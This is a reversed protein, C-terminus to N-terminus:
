NREEKELKIEKKIKKEQMTKKEQSISQAIKEQRVLLRKQLRDIDRRQLYSKTLIIMIVFSLLILAGWLPLDKKPIRNLFGLTNIAENNLSNAIEQINIEDNPDYPKPPYLRFAEPYNEKISTVLLIAEHEDQPLEITVLQYNKIKIIKSKQKEQLMTNLLDEAEITSKTAKVVLLNQVESAELMVFISLFLLVRLIM